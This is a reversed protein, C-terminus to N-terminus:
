FWCCALLKVLTKTVQKPQASLHPFGFKFDFGLKFEAFSASTTPLVRWLQDRPLRRGRDNKMLDCPHQLCPRSAQSDENPRFHLASNIAYANGHRRM